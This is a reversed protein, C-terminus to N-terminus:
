EPLLERQARGDHNLSGSSPRLEKDGNFLRKRTDELVKLYCCSGARALRQTVEDNEKATEDEM